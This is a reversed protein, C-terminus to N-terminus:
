SVHSSHLPPVLEQISIELILPVSSRQPGEGCLIVGIEDDTQQVRISAM